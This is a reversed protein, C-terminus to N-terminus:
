FFYSLLFNFLSGPAYVTLWLRGARLLTSGTLTVDTIEIEKNL